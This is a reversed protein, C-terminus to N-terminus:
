SNEAFTVTAVGMARWKFHESALTSNIDGLINNECTDLLRNKCQNSFIDFYLGCPCILNGRDSVFNSNEHGDLSILLRFHPEVNVREAPVKEKTNGIGNGEIIRLTCSEDPITMEIGAINVSTNCNVLALSVNSYMEFGHCLACHKNKYVFGDAMVSTYDSLDSANCRSAYVSGKNGCSAVMPLKEVRFKVSTDAINVIPLTEVHKRIKTMNFFIDVYQKVSTINNNFFAGICCTGYYRCTKTCCCKGNFSYRCLHHGMDIGPHRLEKPFLHDVIENYLTQNEIDLYNICPDCYVLTIIILLKQIFRM